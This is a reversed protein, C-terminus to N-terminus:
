SGSDAASAAPANIRSRYASSRAQPARPGTKAFRRGLFPLAPVFLRDLLVIPGTHGNSFTQDTHHAKGCDKRARASRVAWASTLFAPVHLVPARIEDESPQGKEDRWAATFIPLDNEAVRRRGGWRTTARGPSGATGRPCATSCTARSSCRDRGSSSPVSARRHASVAARQAHSTGAALRASCTSREEIAASVRAVAAGVTPGLADFRM